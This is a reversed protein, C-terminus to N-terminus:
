RRAAEAALRALKRNTRRLKVILTQVLDIASAPDERLIELVEDATYAQCTTLGTSVATASRPGPDIIAMEGFIEGPGLKAIVEGQGRKASAEFPRLRIEVSGTVVRYCLDGPDGETFIVEEPRFTVKQM